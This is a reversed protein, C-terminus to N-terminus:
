FDDDDGAADNQSMDDETWTQEQPKSSAVYGGEEVEDGWGGDSSQSTALEVLMVSDLQLKVSAGAANSWGYAFMSYKFKCKSGAGIFLPPTEIRKGRSDFLGVNIQKTEKTKPDQYSAYAAFKFTTTGDGNDMFPMDGVYPLLPKKGRQVQPPNAEYAELREAYDAEHLKVISDIMSQCRPDTNSLTLSAKYVGRPNGFGKEENGYDPKTLYAYPEVTGLGTTLIQKKAM